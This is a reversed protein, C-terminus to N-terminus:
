PTSRRRGSPRIGSRSPCRASGSSPRRRFRRVGRRSRGARRAPGGGPTRRSRSTRTLGCQRSSSRNWSYKWPSLPAPRPALWWVPQVPRTANSNALAARAPASCIAPCAVRHRSENAGNGLKRRQRRETGIVVTRACSRGRCCRPRRRRPIGTRRSPDPSVSSCPAPPPPGIATSGAPRSLLGASRSGRERGTPDPRPYESYGPWAAQQVRIGARHGALHLPIGGHEPVGSIVRIAGSPVSEAGVNWRDNSTEPRSRSPCCVARGTPRHRVRDEVLDVDLAERLAVGADRVREAARVGSQRMWSRHFVELSEAHGRNLEERDVLEHMVGLQSLAPQAVVPTVLRDAVERRM